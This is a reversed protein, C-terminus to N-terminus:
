EVEKALYVKGDPSLLVIAGSAADALKEYSGPSSQNVSKLNNLDSRWRWISGRHLVEINPIKNIVHGMAGRVQKESIELANALDERLIMQDPHDKLYCICRRQYGREPM